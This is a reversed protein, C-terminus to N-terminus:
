QLQTQLATFTTIAQTVDADVLLSLASEEALGEDASRTLMNQARQARVAIDARAQIVKSEDGEIAEGAFTIGRSDDNLLSDRLDILHTFVSEVRAKAVGDGQISSATGANTYIGLDTAALSLGLNIVKFDG